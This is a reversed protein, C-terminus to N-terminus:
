IIWRVGVLLLITLDMFLTCFAIMAQTQRYGKGPPPKACASHLFWLGLTTDFWQREISDRLNRFYMYSRNDYAIREHVRYWMLTLFLCAGLALLSMLIRSKQGFIPIVTGAFIFASMQLYLEVIKFETDRRTRMEAQAEKYVDMWLTNMESNRSFPLKYTDQHEYEIKLFGDLARLVAEIFKDLRASASGLCRIIRRPKRM